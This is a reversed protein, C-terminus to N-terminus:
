DMGVTVILKNINFKETKQIAFKIYGTIGVIKNKLYSFTFLDLWIIESNLVEEKDLILKRM